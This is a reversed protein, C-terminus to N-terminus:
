SIIGQYKVGSHASEIAKEVSVNRKTESEMEQSLCAQLFFIFYTRTVIM